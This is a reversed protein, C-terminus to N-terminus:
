VKRCITASDFSPAMMIAVALSANARFGPAIARVAGILSVAESRVKIAWDSLEPGASALVVTSIVVESIVERSIIERSSFDPVERDRPTKLVDDVFPDPEVM